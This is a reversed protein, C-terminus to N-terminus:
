RSYRGLKFLGRFIRFPALLTPTDRVATNYSSSYLMFKESMGMVSLFVSIKVNAPSVVMNTCKLFVFKLVLCKWCAVSVMILQVNFHFMWNFESFHSAMFKLFLLASDLMLILVFSLASSNTFVTLYKPTM